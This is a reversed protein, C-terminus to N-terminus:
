GGREPCDCQQRHRSSLHRPLGRCSHGPTYTPNNSTVAIVRGYFNFNTSQFYALYTGGVTAPLTQLNVTFSAWLVTSNNAVTQSFLDQVFATGLSGLAQNIQVTGNTVNIPETGSEETWPSGADGVINGNAYTFTDQVLYPTFSVIAVHSTASENLSNSVIVSYSSTNSGVSNPVTYCSSQAGSVAVGNSLWQYTLTGTGLASVCLM